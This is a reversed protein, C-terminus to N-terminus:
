NAVIRRLRPTPRALPMRSACLSIASSGVSSSPAFPNIRSSSGPVPIPQHQTQDAFFFWSAFARGRVAIRSRGRPGPRPPGITCVRLRALLRHQNRQRFFSPRSDASEGEWRPPPPEQEGQSILPQDGVEPLLRDWVGDERASSTGQTPDRRMFLAISIARAPSHDREVARPLLAPRV